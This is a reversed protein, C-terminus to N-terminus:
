FGTLPDLTSIFEADGDRKPEFINPKEFQAAKWYHIDGNQQGLMASPINDNRMPVVDSSVEGDRGQMADAITDLIDDHAYKPFRMIENIIALKHPANDAFKISGNRFWPQLGKIRQQKSTRNDRRIEVIPLWKQRKVMERKLFPLLVRAHAEKEIKIDMIRPHLSAINFLLDIVEHPTYRGRLINLLFLTGDHGFGHLNLVSYDNDALKNTSPEMGALDVTVHLSLYAYIKKVAEMPVWVIESESAILGSSPPVPNM